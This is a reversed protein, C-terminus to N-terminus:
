QVCALNLRNRRVTAPSGSGRQLGSIGLADFVASVHADAVRAQWVAPTHSARLM